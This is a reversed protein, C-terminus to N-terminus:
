DVVKLPHYKKVANKQVWEMSLGIPKLEQNVFLEMQDTYHPSQPDASSGFANVSEIQPLHGKKFQVLQIYSEGAVARYTGDDQREGYIAALVDSGGNVPLNVDGRSHRMVESLQPDIRGFDKILTSKAKEIAILCQAETIVGGRKYSNTAKLHQNLEHLSLLFMSVARNDINCRRNWESMLEIADAIQPYSQPSLSILLEQNLMHPQRLSDPYQIDYKIRKFDAYTISSDSGILELFRLSRNNEIGPEQFGMNLGQIPDPNDLQSTSSYPTNNTNFVFGSQPNLVQPLNEIPHYEGTWQVESEAGPLVEMWNYKADRKPLKANSIYYINDQNDAYVINTCPIGQLELGAKFESLNNARNLMYWSEISKVADNAVFRWAYTGNDTIFTPGFISKYKKRRIPIKLPGLVKMWAWVSEEELTYWVEDVRYQLENQPDVDLKYVDSFDAHNVTHAWGLNENTGHFITAAGPFTGGIINTGEDSMLHAEYWSYWGELPQHSNIALYTAGDETRNSNIAIANSGKPFNSKLDKIIDGNMIKQLDTGAGSIEVLGLLYGAVIDSSVVPFLSRELVEDSNANAFANVGDAYSKIIKLVKPSLEEKYREQAVSMIDMFHIGFDAILGEKGKYEGYKGRLALMQEQVTVFDDECTAWALGYAVEEDTAAHIHPVGYNDRYITINTSEELSTSSCSSLILVVFILSYCVNQGINNKLTGTSNLYWNRM